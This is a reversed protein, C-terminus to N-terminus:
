APAARAKWLVVDGQRRVLTGAPVQVLMLLAAVFDSGCSLANLMSILVIDGSHLAAFYSVAVPLLSVVVLPAALVVLYHRRSLAGDYRMSLRWRRWLLGVRVDSGRRATFAIAHALEHVIAVIFAAVILTSYGIRVPKFPAVVLWLVLTAICLTAGAVLSLIRHVGEDPERVQNWALDYAYPASAVVPERAFRM